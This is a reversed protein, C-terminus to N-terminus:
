TDSSANAFPLIHIFALLINTSTLTCASCAKNAATCAGPAHLASRIYLLALVQPCAPCLMYVIPCADYVICFICVANAGMCQGMHVSFLHM